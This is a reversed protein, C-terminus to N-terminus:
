NLMTVSLLSRWNDSCIVTACGLTEVAPLKRILANRKAMRVVGLALAITVVAPLGEPIAAVALSVSTLFMEILKEGRLLGLGFILACIALCGYVLYKGFKELDKQLPTPEREVKQILHAIKGLETYMGTSITIALAKGYVVITGMFTMNKRDGLPTEKELLVTTDKEVPVSEGTLTSEDVKLSYAELLRADAPVHDGMELEVIDGPVLSEAPIIHKEGNRIVKATPASLRKLAALAREAKEEQIFGMIANLIVISLIALSDLWEQLLGSIICAVILILIMFDQFQSFFRQLSSVKKEEIIRNLGVRNLREEAEKQSLGEKRDTKWYSLVSDIEMTHWSKESM